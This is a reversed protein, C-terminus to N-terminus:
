RRLAPLTELRVVVVTEMDVQPFEPLDRAPIRLFVMQVEELLAAVVLALTAILPVYLQFRRGLEMEVALLAVEVVAM